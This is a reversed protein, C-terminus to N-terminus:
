NPLVQAMILVVLIPSNSFNQMFIHPILVLSTYYQAYIGPEAHMVYSEPADAFTNL